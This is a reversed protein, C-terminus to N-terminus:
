ETCAGGTVSGTELKINFPVYSNITSDWAVGTIINKSIETIEIGDCAVRAKWVVGQAGFAAIDTFSVFVLIKRIELPYVKVIPLIPVFTYQEPKNVNIIFGEGYAVVCVTDVHPTTFIGSLYEEGPGNFNGIWPNCNNPIFKIVLGESLLRQSSPYNQIDANAPLGPLIEWSYKKEFEASQLLSKM